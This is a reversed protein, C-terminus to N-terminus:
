HCHCHCVRRLHIWGTSDSIQKPTPREQSPSIEHFLTLLCYTSIQAFTVFQSFLFSLFTFCIRYSNPIHELIVRFFLMSDFKQHNVSDQLECRQDCKAAAKMVLVCTKLFFFFSLAIFIVFLFCSFVFVRFSLLVFLCVLVCVIAVLHEGM